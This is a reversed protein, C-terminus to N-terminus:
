VTGGLTADQCASNPSTSEHLSEEGFHKVATYTSLEEGRFTEVGLVTGSHMEETFHATSSYVGVRAFRSM